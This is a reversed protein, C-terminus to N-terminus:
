RVLAVQEPAMRKATHAVREGVIVIREMQIMPMEVARQVVPGAAVEQVGVVAALALSSVTAAFFLTTEFKKIM